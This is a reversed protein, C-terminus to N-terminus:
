TNQGHASYKDQVLDLRHEEPIRKRKRQHQCRLTVKTTMATTMQVAM